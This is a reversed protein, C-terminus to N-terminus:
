QQLVSTIVQGARVLTLKWYYHKGTLAKELDRTTATKTDNVALIIDGKQLNVNAAPSAEEIDQLLVGEKVGEISFEEIV